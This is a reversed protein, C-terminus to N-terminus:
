LAFIDDMIVDANAYHPADVLCYRVVRRRGTLWPKIGNNYEIHCLIFPIRPVAQHIRIVGTHAPVREAGFVCKGEPFICMSFGNQLLQISGDVGFLKHNGNPNRAPYAGALWMLPKLLSDYFINKTMFSVPTIKFVSRVPLAACIVFPDIWHRHNSIIIYPQNKLFEPKVAATDARTFPQLALKCAVLLIYQFVHQLHRRIAFQKFRTM